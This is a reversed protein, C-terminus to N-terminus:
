ATSTSSAEMPMMASVELLAGLEDRWFIEDVEHEETLVRLSTTSAATLLSLVLLMMTSPRLAVLILTFQEQLLESREEQKDEESKEGTDEAAAQEVRAASCVGVGQLAGVLEALLQDGVAEVLDIVDRGIGDAVEPVVLLQLDLQIRLHFGVCEARKLPLAVLGFLFPLCEELLRLPVPTQAVVLRLPLM